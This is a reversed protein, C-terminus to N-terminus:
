GGGRGLATRFMGLHKRYLNTMTQYDAQTRAVKMLQEELVVANGTPTAADPTEVVEHAVAEATRGPGAAFHQPHTAAPRVAGAAQLRGALARRFAGANLDQAVYGPTDAHAVNRALVEQRRGLWAMRRAITDFLAFSGSAM